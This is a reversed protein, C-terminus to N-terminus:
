KKYRDTILRELSDATAGRYDPIEYYETKIISDTKLGENIIHDLVIIRTQNASPEVFVTKQSTDKLLALYVVGILILLRVAWRAYFDRKRADTFIQKLKEM